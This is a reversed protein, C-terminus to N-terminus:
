EEARDPRESRTGSEQPSSSILLRRVVEVTAADVAVAVVAQEATPPLPPSSQEDCNVISSKPLTPWGSVM